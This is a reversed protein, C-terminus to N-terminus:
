SSGNFGIAQLQTTLGTVATQLALIDVRCQNLLTVIANAQGATTYGFPSANTAGTASAASGVTSAPATVPSPFKFPLRLQLNGPDGTLGLIGRNLTNKGAPTELLAQLALLGNVAQAYAIVLQADAVLQAANQPVKLPRPM